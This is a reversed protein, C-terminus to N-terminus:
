PRAALAAERIKSLTTTPTIAEPDILVHILAPTTAKLAAALAPTFDATERVTFGAAGYARALAAFDPNKLESGPGYGREPYIRDQHMRITGYLGNDVIVTVVNVGHQVATALEQGTMLFCGDGAFCVVTREPHLRKAAIAAPFGYGMSGSTPALQTGAQTFRHFRHVWTAYNGAGSTIIADKPLAEALARMVARMQVRGPIPADAESFARYAAHAAEATGAWAPAGIPPELGDVAAAFANPGAIIGLTPRYVKGIEEPGPHV